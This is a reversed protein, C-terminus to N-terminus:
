GGRIKYIKNIGDLFKEGAKGRGEETRQLGGHSVKGKRLNPFIGNIGDFIGRQGSFSFRGPTSECCRAAGM